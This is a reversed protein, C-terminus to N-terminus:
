NMNVDNQLKLALTKTM